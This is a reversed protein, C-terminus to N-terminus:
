HLHFHTLPITEDKLFVTRALKDGDLLTFHSTRMVSMVVRELVDRYDLAPSEVQWSEGGFCPPLM